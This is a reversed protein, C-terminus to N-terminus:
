APRSGVEVTRRGTEDVTNTPTGRIVRTGKGNTPAAPAAAPAPAPANLASGGLAGGVGRPIPANVTMGRQVTGRISEAEAAARRRRWRVIGWVGLGGVAGVGLIVGGWILAKKM